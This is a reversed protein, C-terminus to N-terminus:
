QMPRPWHRFGIQAQARQGAFLSLDVPTVEAMQLDATGAPRQHGEHHHQRPRPLDVQAEEEIGAHVAEQSAM